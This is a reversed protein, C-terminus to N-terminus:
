VNTICNSQKDTRSEQPLLCMVYRSYFEQKHNIVREIYMKPNFKRSNQPLYQM